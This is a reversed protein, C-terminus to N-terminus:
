LNKILVKTIKETTFFPKLYFFSNCSQGTTLMATYKFTFNISIDWNFLQLILM